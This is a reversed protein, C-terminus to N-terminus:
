DPYYQNVIGLLSEQSESPVNETLRAAAIFPAWQFIADKTVGSKKIYLQLYLEAIEPNHQWYLLYTRYVDAKPNGSTADVWDIITVDEGTSLLNFVHFDGHCLKQEYPMHHLGDLLMRRQFNNILPTSRIKEHLKDCMAELSDATRQHLQFQIDISLALRDITHERSRFMDNGLPDGAIYEMVMAPKGDITMIDLVEPVKLGAEYAWRQKKAEYLIYAQSFHAKLVKIVKHGDRYLEATNGVAFPTGLDM